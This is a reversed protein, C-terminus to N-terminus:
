EIEILIDGEMVAEGKNFKISAVKGSKDSNIINEMKMAELTILKDGARVNDGVNVHVDIITGPLPSKIFGSGKPGAPSSTKQVSPSIDTSPIAESRVLKPTKTTELVRDFEVNYAFGNVDVEAVNDEVNKIEVDYTNGNITFSFKKM